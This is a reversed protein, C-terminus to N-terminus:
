NNEQEPGAQWTKYLTNLRVFSSADGGKDPHCILLAKRYATRLDSDTTNIPLNLKACLDHRAQHSVPLQAPKNAYSSSQSNFSFPRGTKNTDSFSATNFFFPRSTKPTDFQALIQILYPLYNQILHCATQINTNRCTKDILEKTLFNFLMSIDINRPSFLPPNGRNASHTFIYNPIGTTFTRRNFNDFYPATFQRSRQHSGFSSHSNTKYSFPIDHYTKGSPAGQAFKSKELNEAFAAAGWKLFSNFSNIPVRM